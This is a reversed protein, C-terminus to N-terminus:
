CCDDNMCGDRYSDIYKFCEKESTLQLCEELTIVVAVNYFFLQYKCKCEEIRGLLTFLIIGGFSGILILLKFVILGKDKEKGYKIM